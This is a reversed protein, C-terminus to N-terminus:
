SKFKRRLGFAGVFGLAALALTTPEPTAVPADQTGVLQFACSRTGSFSGLNVDEADIIEYTIPNDTYNYHMIKANSNPNNSIAWYLPMYLGSSSYVGESLTIWYSGAALLVSVDEDVQFRYNDVRTMNFGDYGGIYRDYMDSLFPESGIQLRFGIANVNPVVIDFLVNTINSNNDLSFSNTVKYTEGYDVPNTFTGITFARAGTSYSPWIGNDYLIDAYAPLSLAVVVLAACISVICKRM